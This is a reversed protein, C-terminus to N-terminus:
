QLEPLYNVTCQMVPKEGKPVLVIINDKITEGNRFIYGAKVTTYRDNVKVSVNFDKVKVEGGKSTLRKGNANTCSFNALKNQDTSSERYKNAFLRSCGSRNTAYLTIEYRSYEEGSATKLQENKVIYGYEIGDALAPKKEDIELLQSKATLVALCFLICLFSRYYFM